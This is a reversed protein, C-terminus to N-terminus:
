FSTSNYTTMVEINPSITSTIIESVNSALRNFFATPSCQPYYNVCNHNIMGNALARFYMNNNSHTTFYIGLMQNIWFPIRPSIFASIDCITRYICELEMEIFTTWYKTVKMPLSTIMSKVSSISLLETYTRSDYFNLMDKFIKSVLGFPGVLASHLTPYLEFSGNTDNSEVLDTITNVIASLTTTNPASITILEFPSQTPISFVTAFSLFAILSHIIQVM